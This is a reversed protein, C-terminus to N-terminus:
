AWGRDKGCPCPVAESRMHHCKFWHGCDPCCPEKSAGTVQDAMVGQVKELCESCLAVSEGCNGVIVCVTETDCETCKGVEVQMMSEFSRPRSM